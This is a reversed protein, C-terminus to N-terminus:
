KKKEKRRHHHFLTVTASIVTPSEEKIDIAIRLPLYVLDEKRAIAQGVLSVLTNGIERIVVAPQRDWIWKSRLIEESKYKKLFYTSGM